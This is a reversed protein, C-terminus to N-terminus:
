ECSLVLRWYTRGKRHFKVPIFGCVPEDYYDYPWLYVGYPYAGGWGGYGGRGVGRFGGFNGGGHFAHAVGVHGAPRASAGTPVLAVAVAVAAATLGTVVSNALM